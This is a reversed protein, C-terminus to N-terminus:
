YTEIADEDNNLDKERQEHVQLLLNRVNSISITPSQEQDDPKLLGAIRKKESLTRQIKPLHTLLLKPDEDCMEIARNELRQIMPITLLDAIKLRQLLKDQFKKSKPM